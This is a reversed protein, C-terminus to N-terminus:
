GDHVSRNHQVAQPFRERLHELTPDIRDSCRLAPYPFEGHARFRAGNPGHFDGRRDTFQGWHGLTYRVEPRQEASQKWADTFLEGFRPVSNLWSGCVVTDIHPNNQQADELLRILAAAFHVRRESLPSEPTYTNAIHINIQNDRGEDFSWSEYPREELTPQWPRDARAAEKLVPWLIALSEQELIETDEDEIHLEFVERIQALLATWPEIVAGDVPHLKGDYLSTNRFINVRQNLADDFDGVGQLIRKRAYWISLKTFERRYNEYTSLDTM